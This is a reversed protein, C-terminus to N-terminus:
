LNELGEERRDGGETEEKQLLKYQEIIEGLAEVKERVEKETLRM